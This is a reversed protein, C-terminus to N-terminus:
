LISSFADSEIKLHKSTLRISILAHDFSLMSDRYGAKSCFLFTCSRFSSKSSTKNGARINMQEDRFTSSSDYRGVNKQHININAM